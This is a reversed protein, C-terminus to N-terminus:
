KNKGHKYEHVKQGEHLHHVGSVVIIDGKKLGKSIIM